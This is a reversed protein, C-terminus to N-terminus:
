NVDKADNQKDSVNKVDNAEFNTDNSQKSVNSRMNRLAEKADMQMNLVDFQDLNPNSLVSPNESDEYLHCGNDRYAIGQMSALIIDQVSRALAPKAIMTKDLVKERYKQYDFMNKDEYDPIYVKKM